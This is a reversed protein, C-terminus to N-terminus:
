KLHFFRDLSQVLPVVVDLFRNQLLSSLLTLTAANLDDTLEKKSFFKMKDKQKTESKIKNKKKKRKLTVFLPPM